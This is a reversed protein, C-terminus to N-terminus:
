DNLAQNSTKFPKVFRLMFRDTPKGKLSSSFFAQTRDDDPQALAHSEADLVFGKDLLTDIVFQREIRHIGQMDLAHENGSDLPASHDVIGLMGGPKLSQFINELITDVDSEMWYLDHLVLIMLVKDLSDSEFGLADLEKDWRHVNALRNNQLRENVSKDTQFQYFKQNNQMFVSGTPGVCRSVLETYYGGAALIEAVRDGKKIEFFALVKEPQRVEDRVLDSTPRNKHGMAKAISSKTQSEQRAKEPHECASLSFLFMSITLFKHLRGKIVLM